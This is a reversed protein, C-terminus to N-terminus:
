WGGGGGGGGGGGSSGGGGSGSSSGPATSSSSISAALSSGLSSALSTTSFHHHGSYWSPSYEGERTAQALIDSFQESWEQEVELALAWPLLKEFLEPTKEPPNLLNLRDKEAVALYMKLGELKDMVRRGKITPAKLLHYFLINVAIVVALAVVTIISTESVFVTFGTIWGGIFPLSFISIFIAAGKDGLDSVESRVIKWANIVKVLLVYCGATWGSLWVSMFLAVENHRSSIFIFLIILITVFIGPIMYKSNRKFHLAEFDSQLSKKLASIAARIKKHNIQKLTISGSGTFLEGSIKKEGKSLASKNPPNSRELTFTGQNNEIVLHKKVALNVLASAFSKDDFGMQMVFRAAAPTFGEPPNFRPIIAGPEPDRGVKAWVYIYYCLLVMLGFTCLVLLRNDQIFYVAEDQVDPQTVIGKQWAVAITLGEEPGLSKTTRFLMKSGSVVTVEGDSATAGQSGTYISHQKIIAERPLILTASAADIPFVWGNGTVNWYLEDYDDFFGIQRDTQYIITYTYSGSALFVDSEGIYLRIGNKQQATYHPESKGDRQVDLVTYGVKFRVGSRSTYDTPFDRYIGRKIQDGTAVVSITEIVKILGSSEVDIWSDFSTIREQSAQTQALVLHAAFISTGCVLLAICLSVFKRLFLMARDVSGREPM